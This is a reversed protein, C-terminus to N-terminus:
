QDKDAWKFTMEMSAAIDGDVRAVGKMRGIMGRTWLIEVEMLLQDGPRVMRRFKIYDMAGILPVKGTYEPKSLFLAAGTQAMAELILVGPMIPLGPYHGQFFPENITLNKLGICQKGDESVSIIRDVLLMPYRHPLFHLIQDINLVAM